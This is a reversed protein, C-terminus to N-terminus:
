YFFKGLQQSTLQNSSGPSEFQSFENYSDSNENNQGAVVVNNSEANLCIQSTSETIQKSDYSPTEESALGMEVEKSENGNSTEEKKMENMSNLLYDKDIKIQSPLLQQEQQSKVEASDLRRSNTEFDSGNDSEDESSSSSQELKEFKTKLKINEDNQLRKAELEADVSGKEVLKKKLEELEERERLRDKNDMEIEKERLKLKKELSSGKYHVPDDKEDDYDEFFQKLKKVEKLLAKKRAMEKKKEVDYEKRRKDERIEWNKLRERYAAEKERLKREIRKRERAEETDEEKAVRNEKNVPPSNDENMRRDNSRGTSAGRETHALDSHSDAGRRYRRTDPSRSEREKKKKEFM